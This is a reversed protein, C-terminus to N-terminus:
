RVPPFVLVKDGQQIIGASLVPGFVGRKGRAERIFDTKLNKIKHEKELREGVTRCPGNEEWVALIAQKVEKGVRHPPFHLRSTPELKSFNPIGSIIINELLCGVPIKYGLTKEVAEIEEMSLGTWSRFNYFLDGKSRTSTAIYAGDHGSLKRVFGSHSDGVPGDIEFMISQRTEGNIALSEVIGEAIPQIKVM